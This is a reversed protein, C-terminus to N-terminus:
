ACKSSSYLGCWPQLRQCMRGTSGTNAIGATAGTRGISGTNGIMGTSGAGSKEARRMIKHGPRPKM